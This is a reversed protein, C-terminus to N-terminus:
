LYRGLNQNKRKSEEDRDMVIKLDRGKMWGDEPEQSGDLSSEYWLSQIYIYIYIDQKAKCCDIQAKPQDLPRRFDMAFGDVDRGKRNSGTSQV